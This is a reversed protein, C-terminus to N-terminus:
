SQLQSICEDFSEIFHIIQPKQYQTDEYYIYTGLYQEKRITETIISYNNCKEIIDQCYSTNVGDEIKLISKTPIAVKKDLSFGVANNGILETGVLFKEGM